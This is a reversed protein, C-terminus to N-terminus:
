SPWSDGHVARLITDLEADGDNEGEGTVIGDGCASGDEAVPRLSAGGRRRREAAACRAAELGQGLAYHTEM